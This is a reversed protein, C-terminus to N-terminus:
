VLPTCWWTSHSCKKLNTKVICGLSSSEGLSAEFRCARQIMRVLETVLTHWWLLSQELDLM